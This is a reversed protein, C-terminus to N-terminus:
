SSVDVPKGSRASEYMADIIQMLKVGEDANSLPKATGAVTEVFDVVAGIRGM